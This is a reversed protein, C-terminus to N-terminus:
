VKLCAQAVWGYSFFHKIMFNDFIKLIKFNFPTVDNEGGKPGNKDVKTCIPYWQAISVLWFEGNEMKSYTLPYESEGGVIKKRNM